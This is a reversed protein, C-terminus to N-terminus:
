HDFSSPHVLVPLPLLNPLCSSSSMSEEGKHEGQLSNSSSSFFPVFEFFTVDMSVFKKGMALHFM